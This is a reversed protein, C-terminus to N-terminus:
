TLSPPETESSTDLECGYPSHNISSMQFGNISEFERQSQKKRTRHARYKPLLVIIAIILLASLFSITFATMANGSKQTNGDNDSILREPDGIPINKSVPFQCHSGEWGEQCSCTTTEASGNCKGGNSCFYRGKNAGSCFITALKSCFHISFGYSFDTKLADCGCHHYVGGRDDEARICPSGNFCTQDKDECTILTIECHSGAYGAPCECYVKDKYESIPNPDEDEVIESSYGFEAIGIICAGENICTM